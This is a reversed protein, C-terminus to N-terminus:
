ELASLSFLQPMEPRQLDPITQVCRDTLFYMVLDSITTCRNIVHRQLPEYWLAVTVVGCSIQYLFHLAWVRM